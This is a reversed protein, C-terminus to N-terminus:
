EQVRRVADIRALQVDVTGGSRVARDHSREGVGQDVCIGDVAEYHLSALEGAADSQQPALLVQEGARGASEQGAARQYFGYHAAAGDAKHRGGPDM